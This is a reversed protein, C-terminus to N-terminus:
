INMPIISFACNDPSACAGVRTDSRSKGMCMAIQGIPVADARVNTEQKCYPQRSYLYM